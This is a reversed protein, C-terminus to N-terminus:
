RLCKKGNDNWFCSCGSKPSSHSKSVSSFHTGSVLVCGQNDGPNLFGQRYDLVLFLEKWGIVHSHFCRFKLDTQNTSLKIWNQCSNGQTSCIKSINKQYKQKLPADKVTFGKRQLSRWLFKVPNTHFHLNKSAKTFDKKNTKKNKFLQFMPLLLLVRSINSEYVFVNAYFSLEVFHIHIRWGVMLQDNDIQRDTQGDMWQPDLLPPTVGNKGQDGNLHAHAWARLSRIHSFRSPPCLSLSLHHCLPPSLITHWPYTLQHPHVSHTHM